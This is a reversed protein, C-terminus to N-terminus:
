LGVSLGFARAHELIEPPPEKTSKCWGHFGGRYTMDMYESSARFPSEFGEPLTQESSSTVLFVDKGALARGLPKRDSILETLRDFFVKLRGSMSYWYVPTAFVINRSAVMAEVIELFDDEILPRSYDYHHITRDYLDFFRAGSDGLVAALVKATNGKKRSSGLIAVTKPDV